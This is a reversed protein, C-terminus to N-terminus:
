DAADLIELQKSLEVVLNPTPPVNKLAGATLISGGVECATPHLHNTKGIAGAGGRVRLNTRLYEHISAAFKERLTESIKDRAVISDGQFEFDHIVEEMTEIVDSFGTRNPYAIQGAGEQRDRRCTILENDDM